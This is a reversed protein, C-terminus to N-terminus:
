AATKFSSLFANVEAFAKLVAVQEDRPDLNPLLIISRPEPGIDLKYFWDGIIQSGETGDFVVLVIQVWRRENKEHIDLIVPQYEKQDDPQEEEEDDLGVLCKEVVESGKINDLEEKQGDPGIRYTVSLNDKKDLGTKKLAEQLFMHRMYPSSGFSVVLLEKAQYTDEISRSLIDNLKTNSHSSTRDGSVGPRGEKVEQLRQKKLQKLKEHYQLVKKDFARNNDASKQVTLTSPTFKQESPKSRLLQEAQQILDQLDQTPKPSPNQLYAEAKEDRIENVLHDYYEQQPGPYAASRSSRSGFLKSLIEQQHKIWLDAASTCHRLDEYWRQRTSEPIKGEPKLDSYDLIVELVRRTCEELQKHYYVTLKELSSLVSQPSTPDIEAFLKDVHPDKKVKNLLQRCALLDRGLREYGRLVGAHLLRYGAERELGDAYQQKIAITDMLASGHGLTVRTSEQESIRLAVLDAHFRDRLQRCKHIESRLQLLQKELQVRREILRKLNGCQRRREEGNVRFMTEIAPEELHKRLTLKNKTLLENKAGCMELEEQVQANQKWASKMKAELSQCATQTKKLSGTVKRVLKRTLEDNQKKAKASAVLQGDLLPLVLFEM